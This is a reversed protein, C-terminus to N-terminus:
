PPVSALSVSLEELKVIVDCLTARESPDDKMTMRVVEHLCDLIKGSCTTLFESVVKGFAWVDNLVRLDWPSISPDLQTQMDPALWDYSTALGSIDILRANGQTDIVINSPKLDLHTIQNKHLCSLGRAIQPLWKEPALQISKEELVAELSGTVYYELLFGRFVRNRDEQKGTHYPNGSTITAVLRAISLCPSMRSLHAWETLVVESDRPQYLPRDISKFVCLRDEQEIHVLSVAADIDREIKICSLPLVKSKKSLEPLPPYIIKGPDERIECYLQGCFARYANDASLNSINYPVLSWDPCLLTDSAAITLATVTDDVFRLSSFDISKIFQTLQERRVKRKKQAAIFGEISDERIMTGRFTINVHWEWNGKRCILNQSRIHPEPLGKSKFDENECYRGELFHISQYTSMPFFLM